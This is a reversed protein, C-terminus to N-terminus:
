VQRIAPEGNEGPLKLALMQAIGLILDLVLALTVIVLLGRFVSGYDALRVAELILHGLGGGGWVGVGTAILGSAVALTRAGAILRVSLPSPYWHEVLTTTTFATALLGISGGVMMGAAVPGLGLLGVLFPSLVVM